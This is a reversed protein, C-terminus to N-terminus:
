VKGLGLYKFKILDTLRKTQSIYYKLVSYNADLELFINRLEEPSKICDFGWLYSILDYQEKSIKPNYKSFLEKIRKVNDNSNFEKMSIKHNLVNFNSMASDDESEFGIEETTSMYYPKNLYICYGLQSGIDNSMVMDSNLIISKLRPVFYHDNHHGATVVEFGEKQYPIHKKLDVDKYYMCVRVTDYDSSIENIKGLFEGYDFKAIVGDISHSPFVLLTKGLREKEEKLQNEDLLSNAYHIYPGISYVGKFNKQNKLVNVRYQSAVISPLYEHVRCSSNVDNTFIVGHEFFAHIRFNDNLGAYNRFIFNMSYRSLGPEGHIIENYDTELFQSLKEVDTFKINKREESGNDMIM